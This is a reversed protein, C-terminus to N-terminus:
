KKIWFEKSQNQSNLKTVKYQEKTEDLVQFTDYPIKVKQLEEKYYKWDYERGDLGKIQYTPPQTPLRNTIVYIYKSWGPTYGKEFVKKDVIERVYDGIKFKFKVVYEDDLDKYQTKYIQKENSLNVSAPDIKIIRHYSKNYNEVLKPLVDIYRTKKSFSFYRFMKEKLTRNFREIMAAKHISRTEIIRIENEKFYKKCEGMFEKGNDSYIIQPKRGTKFIREFAKKCELSTKNKLPEVWAFRSFVDICTLVFTYHSNTTKFKKMDILDVQWIQDIGKAITRRKPFRRRVPRHLTFAELKLLDNFPRAAPNNKKFSHLSSFAGPVSPDTYTKILKEM